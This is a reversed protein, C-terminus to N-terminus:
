KSDRTIERQQFLAEYATEGALPVAAAEAFSLNVPKLAFLSEDARVYEAFANGYGMNGYVADGVKLRGVSSGVNVVIGSCDMGPIHPFAYTKIISMNGNLLKWDIANISVAHNRVLVQSAKLEKPVTVDSKLQLADKADGYGVQQAATMLDPINNGINGISAASSQM